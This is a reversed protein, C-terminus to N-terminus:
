AGVAGKKSGNRLTTGFKLPFSQPLKEPTNEYVSVYGRCCERRSRLAGAANEPLIHLTKLDSTSYRTVKAKKQWIKSEYTVQKVRLKLM